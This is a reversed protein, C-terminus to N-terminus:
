EMASRWLKLSHLPDVIQYRRRSRVQDEMAAGQVSVMAEDETPWPPGKWHHGGYSRRISIATAKACAIVGCDSPLPLTDEMVAAQVSAMAGYEMTWRPGKWHQGGHWSEGLLPLGYCLM